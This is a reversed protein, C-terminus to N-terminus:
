ETSPDNDLAGSQAWPHDTVLMVSVKLGSELVKVCLREDTTVLTCRLDEALALYEANNTNGLFGLSQQIRLVDGFVAIHMAWDTGLIDELLITADTLNTVGLAILDRSVLATVESYFVSPVHLSAGHFAARALFRNSALALSQVEPAFLASDGGGYFAVGADVVYVRAIRAPNV